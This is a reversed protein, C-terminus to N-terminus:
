NALSESSAGLNWAVESMKELKVMRGSGKLTHFGRQLGTLPERDTADIRCKQLETAISALVEEAEELFIALLEPDANRV